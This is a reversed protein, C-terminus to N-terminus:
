IISEGDIELQTITLTSEYTGSKNHDIRVGICNTGSPITVTKTTTSTYLYAVGIEDDDDWDTRYEIVGLCGSAYTSELSYTITLSKGDLPVDSKYQAAAAAIYGSSTATTKLYIEIVGDAFSVAWDDIKITSATIWM